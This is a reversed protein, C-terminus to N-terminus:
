WIKHISFIYLITKKRNDNGAVKDNYNVINFARIKTFMSWPMQLTFMYLTKLHFISLVNQFMKNLVFLKNRFLSCVYKWTQDSRIWWIQPGWTDKQIQSCCFFIENRSVRTHQNYIWIFIMHTCPGRNVGINKFPGDNFAGIENVRSSYRLLILNLNMYRGISM